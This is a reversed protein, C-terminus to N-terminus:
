HPVECKKGPTQEARIEINLPANGHGSGARYDHVKSQHGKSLIRECISLLIILLVREALGIM